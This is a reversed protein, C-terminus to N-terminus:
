SNRILIYWPAYSYSGAVSPRLPRMELSTRLIGNDDEVAATNIQARPIYMAFQATRILVTEITGNTWKNWFDYESNRKLLPTIKLSPEMNTIMFQSYGNSSSHCQVPTVVNGFNFEISSLCVSTSGIIGSGNIFRDPITASGSYVPIAALAVDSIDNLGGQFDWKLDYPKGAGATSLTCNGAMGVFSYYLGSPSSSGELDYIGASLTNEVGSSSPYIVLGSGALTADVVGSRITCGCAKVFKTWDPEAGTAQESNFKTTFSINASQPGAISEGLGFDGTAYKSPNADPEVNISGIQLDWVRVNNHASSLTVATGPTVEPASAFARLKTLFQSM